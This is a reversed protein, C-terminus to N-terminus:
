NEAKETTKRERGVIRRCLRFVPDDDNTYIVTGKQRKAAVEGREVDEIDELSQVSDLKHDRLLFAFAVLPVLLCLGVICLQRQLDAYALVVARRPLSGWSHEEIYKYPSEFALAALDTDVDLEKMKSVITPYMRQTWIAGSVCDACAAGINYISAFLATVTAMYEHNTCAQISVGVPRMFFGAGFGDIAFAIALGDRFYKGRLGDNDGRYHLFLGMSIFLVCVGFLIFGKTRKVKIIVLGLIPLVISSVFSGLQPTRTAVVESANMGVMLVPYAYAGPVGSAFVNWIGIAFGAWVGRDRLLPFPILPIKAWKLEWAIFLPILCFGFVLPVITSAQQWSTQAGGALTLPVLILGFIACIFFCAMIDVQWFMKVAKFSSAKWIHSIKGLVKSGGLEVHARYTDAFEKLEVQSDREEQCIQKWEPLNRVKWKMYIFSSLFPICALPTTFAFLAIGFSWGHRKLLSDIIEGSSWTTIIVPLTVVAIALVRYRLTSADSASIQFLIRAGAFGAGYLVNAGAYKDISNAQSMVILGIVRLGLSFSFLEFRGFNDSLRAYVPLSAAAIVLQILRITSMLSHQRFDSAAYSSFIGSVRSEVLSVYMGIFIGFFHFGKLFVTDLQDMMLEQKRIGFSKELVKSDHTEISSNTKQKILEESVRPEKEQSVEVSTLSIKSNAAM